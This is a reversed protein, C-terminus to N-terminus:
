SLARRHYPQVLALRKWYGLRAVHVKFEANLALCTLLVKNFYTTDHPSVHDWARLRMAREFPDVQCLLPFMCEPIPGAEGMEIEKMASM